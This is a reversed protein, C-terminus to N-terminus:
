APVLDGPHVRRSRPESGSRFDVYDNTGDLEIGYNPVATPDTVFIEVEDFVTNIGDYATLRFTYTGTGSNAFSM